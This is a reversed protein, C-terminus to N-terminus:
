LEGTIREKHTKQMKAIIPFEAQDLRNALANWSIRNKGMGPTRIIFLNGKSIQYFTRSLAFSAIALNTETSLLGRLIAELVKPNVRAASYLSVV